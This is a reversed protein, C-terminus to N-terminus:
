ALVEIPGCTVKASLSIRVPEVLVFKAIRLDLAVRQDPLLCTFAM